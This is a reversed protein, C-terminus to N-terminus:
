DLASNYIECVRRWKRTKFWGGCRRKVARRVHSLPSLRENAHKYHRSSSWPSILASPPAVPSTQPCHISDSDTETWRRNSSFHGVKPIIHHKPESFYFISLWQPKFRLLVPYFVNNAIFIFPFLRWFCVRSVTKITEWSKAGCQNMWCWSAWLESRKELWTM